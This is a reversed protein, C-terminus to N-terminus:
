PKEALDFLRAEEEVAQRVSRHQVVLAPMEVAHPSEDLARVLRRTQEVHFIENEQRSRGVDARREVINLSRRHEPRRAGELHVALAVAMDLGVPNEMKEQEIEFERARDVVTERM